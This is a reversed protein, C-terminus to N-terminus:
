FFDTLLWLQRAALFHLRVLCQVAFCRSKWIEKWCSEPFVKQEWLGSLRYIKFCSHESLVFVPHLYLAVCLIQWRQRLLYYHWHGQWKCGTKTALLTQWEARPSGCSVCLIRKAICSIQTRSGWAPFIEPTLFMVWVLIRAQFWPCIDKAPGIWQGVFTLHSRRAVLGISKGGRGLSRVCMNKKYCNWKIKAFSYVWTQPKTLQATAWLSTHVQIKM